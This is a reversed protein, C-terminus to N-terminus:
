NGVVAEFTVTGRPTTWGIASGDPLATAKSASNVSKVKLGGPLRIHLTASAATSDHAFTAAGTVQSRAPM